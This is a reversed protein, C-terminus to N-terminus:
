YNFNLVAKFSIITQLCALACNNVVLRQWKKHAVVHVPIKYQVDSCLPTVAMSSFHKQFMVGKALM